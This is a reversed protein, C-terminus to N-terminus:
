DGEYSYVKDSQCSPPSQEPRPLRTVLRAPNGAVLTYDDVNGTVLAGPAVISGEGVHVGKLVIANAGLVALEGIVVRGTPINPRPDSRLGYITMLDLKRLGSDMPHTDSDFIQVGHGLGAWAGIEVRESCSILCDDGIYVHDRIVLTGREFTRLIGRCIVSAGLQIQDKSGANFCWAGPGIKLNEGIVASERFSSAVVELQRQEFIRWLRSSIRRRIRQFFSDHGTPSVVYTPGTAYAHYRDIPL